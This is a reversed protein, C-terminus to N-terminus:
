VLMKRGNDLHFYIKPDLHDFRGTYYLYNMIAQDGGHSKFWCKEETMWHKMEQYMINLYDLMVERTAITTGSCLMPKDKMSYGDYCQSVRTQTFPNGADITHHEAFLQLGHIEEVGDGFPDRQFLVDRADTVLVPGTCATCEQLEDRLKPYRGWRVKIDPYPKICTNGEKKKKKNYQDNDDFIPKDCPVFELEVITVNKKDLYAEVGQKMTGRKEAAIISFELQTVYKSM